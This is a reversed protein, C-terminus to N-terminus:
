DKGRSVSRTTFKVLKHSVALTAVLLLLLLLEQRFLERLVRESVEGFLYGGWFCGLIWVVSSASSLLFFRGWSYGNVGLFLPIVVGMGYIFPVALSLYDFDRGFERDIRQFEEELKPFRVLLEEKLLRGVLFFLQYSLVTGAYAATLTSAVPFLGLRAFVGCLFVTVAGETFGGVFAFLVPHTKLLALIREL